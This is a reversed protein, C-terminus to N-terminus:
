ICSPVPAQVVDGAAQYLFQKFAAASCSSFLLLRAHTSAFSWIPVRSTWSPAKLSLEVGKLHSSQTCLLFSLLNYSYYIIKKKTPVFSSSSFFPQLSISLFCLSRSFSSDSTRSSKSSAKLTRLYMVLALFLSCALLQLLGSRTRHLSSSRPRIPPHLTHQLSSGCSWSTNSRGERM